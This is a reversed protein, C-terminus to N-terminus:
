LSKTENLSAILEPLRKDRLDHELARRASSRACFLDFREARLREAGAVYQAQVAQLRARLDEDVSPPLAPMLEGLWQAVHAARQLAAGNETLSAENAAITQVYNEAEEIKPMLVALRYTSPKPLPLPPPTAAAATAAPAHPLAPAASAPKEAGPDAMPEPVPPVVPGGNGPGSPAPAQRPDEWYTVDAAEELTPSRMPLDPELAPVPTKAAYNRAVLIWENRGAMGLFRAPDQFLPSVAPPALRSGRTRAQALANPPVGLEVGIELRAYEKECYPLVRLALGEFPNRKLDAGAAMAARVASLAHHSLLDSTNFWVPPVAEPKGMGTLPHYARDPWGEIMAYFQLQTYPTGEQVLRYYWDDARGAYPRLALGDAVFTTSVKQLHFRDVRARILGTDAATQFEFRRKELTAAAERGLPVVVMPLCRDLAVPRHDMGVLYDFFKFNGGQLRGEALVLDDAPPLAELGAPEIGQGLAEALAEIKEAPLDDPLLRGYQELLAWAVLPRRVEVGNQASTASLLEVALPNAEGAFLPLALACLLATLWLPRM